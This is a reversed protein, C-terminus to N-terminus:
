AVETKGVGAEGELLIPKELQAALMVTLALPRDAIFNERAFAEQVAEVSSFVQMATRNNESM